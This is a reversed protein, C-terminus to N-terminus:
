IRVRQNIGTSIIDLQKREASVKFERVAEEVESLEEAETLAMKAETYDDIMADVANEDILKLL